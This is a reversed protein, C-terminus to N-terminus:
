SFRWCAKGVEVVVKVHSENCTQNMCHCQKWHAFVILMCDIKQMNKSWVICNLYWIM